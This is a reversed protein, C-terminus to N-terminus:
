FRRVQPKEDPISIDNVFMALRDKERKPMQDVDLTVAGFLEEELGKLHQLFGSNPSVQPRAELVLGLAAKLSMGRSKM